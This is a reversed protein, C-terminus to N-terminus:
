CCGRVHCGKCNCKFKLNGWCEDKNRIRTIAHFSEMVSLYHELPWGDVIAKNEDLHQGCFVTFDRLYPKLRHAVEMVKKTGKPDIM